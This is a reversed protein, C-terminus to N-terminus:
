SGTYVETQGDYFIMDQTPNERMKQLRSTLTGVHIELKHGDPDLIYMSDGESKNEKWLDVGSAMLSRSYQEFLQESIDFAIHSYDRSPQARDVSLCIWQGAVELYAGKAWTVKLLMGLRQQYFAVSRELDSVAITIHNIGTLV